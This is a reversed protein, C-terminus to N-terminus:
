RMGEKEMIYNLIYSWISEPTGSTTVADNTFELQTYPTDMCIKIPGQIRNLVDHRDDIFYDCRVYKKEKTAIYGDIFPFNRELFQWKNKHHNGKVTSVVVIEFGSDSLEQLAEVAGKMPKVGDYATESRWFSYLDRKHYNFAEFYDSLDYSLICETKSPFPINTGCVSNMWDWWAVDSQAITLDCDVAIVKSM